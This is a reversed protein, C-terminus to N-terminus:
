SRKFWDATLRSDDQAPAPRGSPMAEPSQRLPSGQLGLRMVLDWAQEVAVATHHAPDLHRRASSVTKTMALVLSRVVISLHDHNDPHTSSM